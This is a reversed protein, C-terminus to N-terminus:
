PSKPTKQAQLAAFLGWFLTKAFNDVPPLESDANSDPDKDTKWL